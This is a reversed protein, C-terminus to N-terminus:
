PLYFETANCIYGGTITITAFREYEKANDALDKLTGDVCYDDSATDPGDPPIVRISGNKLVPMIIEKNSTDSIYYDNSIYEVGNEDVEIINSHGDAKAQAIAEAGTYIKALRFTITGQSKSDPAKTSVSTIYANYSGDDVAPKQTPAPTPTPTATPKKTPKTTTDATTAATTQSSASETSSATQAATTTAATIAATTATTKGPGTIKQTGQFLVIATVAVVIVIGVSLAAIVINDKKM